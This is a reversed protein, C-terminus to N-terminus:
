LKSLGHAWSRLHIEANSSTYKLAEAEDAEIDDAAEFLISEEFNSTDAFLPAEEAWCLGSLTTQEWLKQM